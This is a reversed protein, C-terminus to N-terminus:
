KQILLNGIRRIFVFGIGWILPLWIPVGFFSGEKWYQLNYLQDSGLEIITGIILGFLFVKFEGKKYKVKFVLLLFLSLLFFILIENKTLFILAFAILLFVVQILAEKIGMRNVWGEV